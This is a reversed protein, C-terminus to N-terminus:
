KDDALILVINPARDKQSSEAANGPHAPLIAALAVLLLIAMRLRMTRPLHSAFCPKPATAHQM